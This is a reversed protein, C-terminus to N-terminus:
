SKQQYSVIGTRSDITVITGDEIKDIASPIGHIVPIDLDEMDSSLREVCIIGGFGHLDARDLFALNKVLLIDGSCKKALLEDKTAVICTKGSAKRYAGAGVGRLVSENIVHLIITNTSADIGDPLGATLVVLDGKGVMKSEMAKKGAAVLLKGFQKEGSVIIPFVGWFLILRRRVRESETVALVPQKPRFHSIATATRGSTTFAFIASASMQYAMECTALSIAAVANHKEPIVTLISDYSLTEETFSAIKSMAAVAEVPYLGSATEGSLMVADTGDIIANAVDTVEARTPSPNRIMSDMMQTATIVPKGKSRCLSILKKQIVPVQEFPVEVGLDGRAVMFGYSRDLIADIDDLAEPKEIKSIIPIFHGNKSMIEYAPLLDASKRVFSIAIFDVNNDIGFQLDKLDKETLSPVSLTAGPFNVGKKSSIYGPNVVRCEVKNDFVNLVSLEILGDDILVRDGPKVEKSLNKYTVTAGDVTGPVDDEYLTFIAGREIALPGNEVMGLRIKPGCLDQLIAVPIDLESSIARVKDIVDKHSEYSGHSFNLRAVNMGELILKRLIAEDSCSPGITCVIKTRRM